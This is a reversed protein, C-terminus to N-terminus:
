PYVGIHCKDCLTPQSPAFKNAPKNYYAQLADQETRGQGYPQYAQGEQAYFGNYEVYASSTNWRTIHDWGSAHARHCSLCMVQSPGAPGALYSDDTKAHAKLTAYDSTGEEFPVLSLFSTSPDPTALINGDYVYKNYNDLYPQAFLAASGAAHVLQPDGPSHINLHCNRCWESMGSGYAVRTQTVDEARNAKLPAVAAPPNYVFAYGSAITKPQYGIGGLLRYVGVATAGDPDPSSDFSGSASIPSGTTTISGDNNRRYKGHPDHCSTCGLQDAPYNGGPAMTNVTDQLYLFDAAMINHGHREGPSTYLTPDTASVQWSYSKKLWAFDGGPTLQKPPASLIESDPTSIHYTTPGLDGLNQHCFLCVSSPDQQRLLYKQASSGYVPSGQESNHMIHCGECAGVGGNHFASAPTVALLVAAAVSM